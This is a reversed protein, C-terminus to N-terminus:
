ITELMEQAHALTQATIKVGGVMRAIEQIRQEDSLEIIQTHTSRQDAIKNVQLHQHGKAAVQALHTICLTQAQKALQRLMSGVIDATAGGIGVDIEDFILTPTQQHQTTIVQIALSIRSLEGGSAVKNLAQLPQGPNTTVKFEINEMGHATFSNEKYNEFDIAFKGNPMGLQKINVTVLESLQKASKHRSESLKKAATSYDATLCNIKEQLENLEEEAHALEFIEEAMKEQLAILEEGNVHHKRALQFILSLREEIWKLREPDPEIKELFHQLEISSENLQITAENLLKNISQLQPNYDQVKELQNVVQILLEQISYDQESLTALATQCTQILSDAHTLQKHEQNLKELEGSVLSLENLEKLQYQLYEVRAESNAHTQQLTEYSVKTDKWNKYLQQVNKVLEHHGAFADLLHRQEDHKLLLQHEHQGHINILLEGIERLLSLTIPRDNIFSKSRGDQYIVRRIICEEQEDLEREMLWAKAAAINQTNFTICIDARDCGHRILESTARRGLAIEIADIIISKGAGTEGTLVTMGPKLELELQEIITFNKIHIHTLMHTVRDTGKLALKLIM